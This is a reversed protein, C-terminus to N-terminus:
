AAVEMLWGEVDSRRYRPISPSLWTVRPGKRALRWRCVTSPAVKLWAAVEESTLFEDPMTDEKPVATRATKAARIDTAM